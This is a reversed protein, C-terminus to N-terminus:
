MLKSITIKKRMNSRIEQTFIENPNNEQYENLDLSYQFTHQTHNSDPLQLELTYKVM